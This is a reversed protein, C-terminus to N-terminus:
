VHEVALMGKSRVGRVHRRLAEAVETPTPISELTLTEDSEDTSFVELRGTDVLRDVVGQKLRVDNVRLLEMQDTIRTFIGRHVILRQTTLQYNLGYVILAERIFLAVAAGGVFLWTIKVLDSGGGAYHSAAALCGGSIVLWWLWAGSYARWSPRGAWVSQEGEPDHYRDPSEDTDSQDHSKASSSATVRKPKRPRPIREGCHKCFRSDAAITKDCTRCKM